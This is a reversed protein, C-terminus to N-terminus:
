DFPLVVDVVPLKKLKFEAVGIVTLLLLVLSPRSRDRKRNAIAVALRGPFGGHFSPSM